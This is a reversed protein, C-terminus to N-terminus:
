TGVVLLTSSTMDVATSTELAPRTVLEPIDRSTLVLAIDIVVDLKNGITVDLTTGTSENLSPKILVVTGKIVDLGPGTIMDLVTGASVELVIGTVM